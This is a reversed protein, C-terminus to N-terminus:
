SGPQIGADRIVKTWRALEARIMDGLEKPTSEAPEVGISELHRRFEPDALARRMEANVKTVIARPTGAPALLGFWTTNNFGAYTEAIAPVDPMSRVRTPHGIGIARIRGAAIQPQCYPIGGFLAQIRGALLDVMAPGGGKYPVHVFRAGTMANLLEIGLHNPTGTGPSGFNFKAPQSKVSAVLETVSKAPLWSASHRGRKSRRWRARTSTPTASTAPNKPPSEPIQPGGSTM